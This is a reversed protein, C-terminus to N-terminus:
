QVEVSTEIHDHVEEKEVHVVINYMGAEEFKYSCTYTGKTTGEAADIYHHYEEGDKWIEFRVMAQSFPHDEKQITTTLLEEENEQFVTLEDVTINVSSHHHDVEAHKTAKLGEGVQIDKTPMTHYSKVNTHATVQYTGDEKFLYDIKYTGKDVLKAKIKESDDGLKIEFTVKADDVLEEGYYVNASIPVKEAKNVHEKAIIEVRPAKVEDEAAAQHNKHDDSEQCGSLIFSFIILLCAIMISKM